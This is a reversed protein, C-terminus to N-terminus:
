LFFKKLLKKEAQEMKRGHVMGKLHLLAHIFLFHVFKKFSMDFKKAEQKAVTLDIFIEGSTKSLPFALVNTPENKGRYIKNLKRSLKSDTFVLSLEYKKGLVGDKIKERKSDAVPLRKSKM